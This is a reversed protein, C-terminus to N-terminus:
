EMRANQPETLRSLLPLTTAVVGVAGVLGATMIVWYTGGPM